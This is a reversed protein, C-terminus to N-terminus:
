LNPWAKKEICAVLDRDIELATVMAGSALIYKTLVGEGPGIELFFDCAKPNIIDTLALLVNADILFHQGFRKRHKHGSM